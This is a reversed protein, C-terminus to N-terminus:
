HLYKLDTMKEAKAEKDGFCFTQHKDVTRLRPQMNSDNPFSKFIHGPKVV